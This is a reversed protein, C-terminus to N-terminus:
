LLPTIQKLNLSCSAFSFALVSSYIPIGPHLSTFHCIRTANCLFYLTTIIFYTSVCVGNNPTGYYDTCFQGGQDVLYHISKSAFFIVDEADSYKFCPVFSIAENFFITAVEVDIGNISIAVGGTGSVEMVLANDAIFMLYHQESDAARFVNAFEIYKVMSQVATPSEFRVRFLDIRPQGFRLDILPM